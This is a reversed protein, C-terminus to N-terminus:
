LVGARPHGQRDAAKVLIPLRACRGVVGEQGAGGVLALRIEPNEPGPPISPDIPEFGISVSFDSDLRAEHGARDRVTVAVTNQGEMVVSPADPAPDFVLREPGAAVDQLIPVGNVWVKASSPEVGCLEDTYAVEIRPALTGVVSHPAPAVLTLTPPSLDVFFASTFGATHGANDDISVSLTHRGESLAAGGAFSLRMEGPWLVGLDTVDRECPTGADLVAHFTGAAIGTGADALTVRITGSADSEVGGQGGAVIQVMPATADVTFSVLTETRRGDVDSLEAQVEHAGDALAAVLPVELEVGGAVDGAFASVDQPAAAHPDLLM